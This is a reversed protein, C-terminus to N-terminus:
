NPYLPYTFTKEIPRGWLSEYYKGTIGPMDFDNDPFSVHVWRMVANHFVGGHVYHYNLYDLQSQTFTGTGIKDELKKIDEEIDKRWRSGQSALLFIQM